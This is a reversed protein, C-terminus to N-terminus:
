VTACSSPWPRSPGPSRSVGSNAAASERPLSKLRSENSIAALGSGYGNMCTMEEFCTAGARAASKREAQALVPSRTTLTNSSRAATAAGYIPLSGTPGGAGAAGAPVEAAPVPTQDPAAPAGPSSPAQAGLRAELAAIRDDYRKQADALEKRLQDIEQQLAQVDAAQAAARLPVGCLLAIVVSSYAVYHIRM